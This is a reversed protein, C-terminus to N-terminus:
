VLAYRTALSAAAGRTRLNLKTLINAIHRKATHESIGLSLAIDANSSGQAVLALVGRERRTLSALAAPFLEPQGAARRSIVPGGGEGTAKSRALDQGAAALRLARVYRMTLDSRVFYCNGSLRSEVLKPNLIQAAALTYHAELREGLEALCAALVIYHVAFRPRMAVARRAHDVCSEPDGAVYDALALPWHGQSVSRDCPSLRLSQAGHERAADPLEHNAEVWSLWRLTMVDNPNLEHALRLSAMAESHRMQRMAIHGSLAHATHNLPDLERQRLAADEAAAYDAQSDPGFYSLEGRLSHGWALCRHAEAYRPDRRVAERALAIGESILTIDDTDGGRMLASRARQVLDYADLSRAPLRKAGLPETPPREPTLHDAIERAIEEQMPLADAISGDFRNSWLPRLSSTDILRMTIRLRNERREITGDVMYQVALTRAIRPIDSAFRRCAVSSEWGTVLIDRFRSLEITLDEALGDSLYAQGPDDSLNIFPMVAVTKDARSWASVAGSLVASTDRTGPLAVAISSASPM